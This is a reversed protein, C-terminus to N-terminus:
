QGIILVEACSGNSLAYKYGHYTFVQVHKKFQRLDECIEPVSPIGDARYSVAITSERYREFVQRFVARVTDRGNWPNYVPTLRRHKSAQDILHPWTTYHVIGDFFHYFDRYNVTTGRQSTYPPDLYVLDYTGPIDLIDLNTAQNEQGNHCVLANIERIFKQFHDPFPTDWSTKNGFSREVNAFRIYLNKRHFLNYPRKVLCAQFLAYYALTKKAFPLREINQVTVDLWQNEEDTYYIDRFTDTIFSKYTHSPDVTLVFAIDADTLHEASNEILAHGIYYNFTLHDNYFVQRGMRKLVYSVVGTGGFGDLATSFELENLIDTIWWVLKNKSGQYRTSPIPFRGQPIHAPFLDLQKPAHKPM